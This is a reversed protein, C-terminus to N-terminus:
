LSPISKLLSAAAIRRYGKPVRWRVNVGQDWRAKGVNLDLSADVATKGLTASVSMEPAVPGYPTTKPAAYLCELPAVGTEVVLAELANARSVRFSYADAHVSGVAAPTVTYGASSSGIRVGSLDLRDTGLAFIRGLLLNQLDGVGAPFGRLLSATSEAFYVKDLRYSAFISDPTAMATLVEMGLFRFSLHVVSDRVMSMTGSISVGAPKRLKLEVPVRLDHWDGYSSVLQEFRAGASGKPQAAGSAQTHAGAAEHGSAVATKGSRCGTAALTLIAVVGLTLFTKLTRIM